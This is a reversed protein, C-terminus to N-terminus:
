FHSQGERCAHLLFAGESLSFSFFSISKKLFYWCQVDFCHCFTMNESSLVKRSSLPWDFTILLGIFMGFCSGHYVMLVTLCESLTITQPANLLVLPCSPNCKRGLFMVIRPELLRWTKFSWKSGKQPMWWCSPVGAYLVFSALCHNLSSSIGIKSHSPLEGSRLGMSFAHFKILFLTCSAWADLIVSSLSTSFCKLTVMSVSYKSFNASKIGWLNCFTMWALPKIDM